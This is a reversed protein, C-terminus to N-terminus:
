LRRSSRGLALAFRWSDGLELWDDEPIGALDAAELGGQHLAVSVGLVPVLGVAPSAVAQDAVKM